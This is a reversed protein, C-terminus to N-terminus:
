PLSKPCAGSASRIAAKSAAKSGAGCESLNKDLWPGGVQVTDGVTPQEGLYGDMWDRVSTAM